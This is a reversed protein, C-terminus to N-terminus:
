VVWMYECANAEKERLKKKEKKTTKGKYYSNKAFYKQHVTQLPFQM